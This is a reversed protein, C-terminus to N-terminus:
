EQILGSNGRKNTWTFRPGSFGQDIMNCRDLCEKFCLSNNIKVARAGYKDNDLLPENFDRAIVWPMDILNSTSCLNNWLVCRKALRPSAYM